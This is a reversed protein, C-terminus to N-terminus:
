HFSSTIHKHALSSTKSEKNKFENKNIRQFFFGFHHFFCFANLSFGNQNFTHHIENFYRNLVVKIHKQTQNKYRQENKNKSMRYIKPCVM